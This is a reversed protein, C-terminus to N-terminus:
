GLFIMHVTNQEATLLTKEELERLYDQVDQQSPLNLSHDSISHLVMASSNMTKYIQYPINSGGVPHFPGPHLDPLIMRFDNKDDNTSFRIQSTSINSPKSTELIISEMDRPDNRSVSQLYAQLLKHTSKIMHATNQEVTLM